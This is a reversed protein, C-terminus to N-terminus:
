YYIKLVVWKEFKEGDEKKEFISSFTCFAFIKIQNTTHPRSEKEVHFILFKQIAEEGSFMEGHYSVVSCRFLLLMEEDDFDRESAEVNSIALICIMTMDKQASEHAHSHVFKQPKASKHLKASSLLSSIFQLRFCKFAMRLLQKRFQKKKNEFIHVTKFFIKFLLKSLAFFSM